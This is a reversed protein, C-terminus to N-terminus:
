QRYIQPLRRRWPDDDAQELLQEQRKRQKPQSLRWNYLAALLGERILSGRVLAVAEKNDMQELDLGYKKFAAAYLPDASELDFTGDKIASQRLRIEELEAILEVDKRAQAVRKQLPEPGGGAMRGGARELLARAEAWREAKMHEAADHLLAEVETILAKAESRSREDQHEESVPREPGM